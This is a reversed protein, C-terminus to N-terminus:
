ASSKSFRLNKHPFFVAIFEVYRSTQEMNNAMLITQAKRLVNPVQVLTALSTM